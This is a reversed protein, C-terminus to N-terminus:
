RAVAVEVEVVADREGLLLLAVARDVVVVLAAAM